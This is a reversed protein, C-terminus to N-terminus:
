FIIKLFNDILRFLNKKVIILDNSPSENLVKEIKAVDDPTQLPFNYLTSDCKERYNKGNDNLLSKRQYKIEGIENNIQNIINFQKEM